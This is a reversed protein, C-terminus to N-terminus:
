DNWVKVLKKVDRKSLPNNGVLEPRSKYEYGWEVRLILLNTGVPAM